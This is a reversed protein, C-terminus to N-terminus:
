LIPWQCVSVMKAQEQWNGYATRATDWNRQKKTHDIGGGPTEHAVKTSRGEVKLTGIVTSTNKTDPWNMAMETKCLQKELPATVSYLAEHWRERLAMACSVNVM